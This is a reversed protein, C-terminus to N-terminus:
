SKEKKIIQLLEEDKIYVPVIRGEMNYGSSGGGYPSNRYAQEAIESTQYLKNSFRVWEHHEKKKGLLFVNKQEVMFGILKM